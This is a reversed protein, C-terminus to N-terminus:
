QQPDTQRVPEELPQMQPVPEGFQESFPLDTHVQPLPIESPVFGAPPQMHPAPPVPFPMESPKMDSPVGEHVEGMIPPPGEHFPINKPATQMHPLIDAQERMRMQDEPPINGRQEELVNNKIFPRRTDHDGQMARDNPESAGSPRERRVEGEPRFRPMDFSEPRSGGDNVGEMIAAADRNGNQMMKERFKQMLEMQQRYEPSNADPREWPLLDPRPISPMSADFQGPFGPPPGDFPFQPGSPREEQERFSQEMAEMKQQFANMKEVEERAATDGTAAQAELSQKKEMFQNILQQHKTKEEISERRDTRLTELQKQAEQDGQMAQRLLDGHKEKFLKVEEAHISMRDRAEKVHERVMEPIDAEPIEELLRKNKELVQERRAEMKQLVQEPLQQELRTFVEERRMQHTAINKILKQTREDKKELWEQKKDAIKEIYLNAREVMDAAKQQAQPSDSSAAITQALQMREEAFQLHKEAKKVPDFTTMLSVREKVGRLLLGFRSPAKVPEEIAIQDSQPLALSEQGVFQAIETDFIQVASQDGSFVSTTEAQAYIASPYSLSALTTAVVVGLYMRSNM